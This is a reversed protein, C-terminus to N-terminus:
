PATFQYYVDSTDLASSSTVTAIGASQSTISLHGITGGPAARCYLIVTDASIRVDKIDATGGALTVKGQPFIEKILDITDQSLPWTLQGSTEETSSIRDEHDGVSDQLGSVTDANDESASQLDEVQQALEDFSSM